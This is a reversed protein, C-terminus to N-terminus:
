HLMGSVANTSVVNGCFQFTEGVSGDETAGGGVVTVGPLERALTAILPEADLTYPDPFLSLLNNAGLHPRVAAVIEAAVERSRGRLQPVFLRTGAITGGGLVLVALSPGSEF